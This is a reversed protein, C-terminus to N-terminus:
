EEKLGDVAIRFGQRFGRKFYYCLEKVTVCSKAFQYEEFAQVAKENDKIFEMFAREKEELGAKKCEEYLQPSSVADYEWCFLDDIASDM